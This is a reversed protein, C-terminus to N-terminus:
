PLPANFARFIMALFFDLDLAPILLRIL